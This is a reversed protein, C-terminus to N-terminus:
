KKPQPSGRVVRLGSYGLSAPQYATKNDAPRDASGGLTKGTGDAAIVWEAVNGGLDFILDEDKDGQGHFSGVERLLPADGPLEAITKMLRDADDPNPSYGAWYDLTNEGSTNKYLSAVEDENPVRWQDHTTTSLWAVYAKAKEFTIGNAPYNETGPDVKYSHDFAAYQARTVEFRGIELNGRKVVEPALVPGAGTVKVLNGYRAGDRAIDRRRLAEGLPSDKKFAENEPKETKFLYRDMWTMEENVKRLQHTLKAPGHAEGPFLIFRVPAKNITYLTRYHTWGEETPVQRDNTGFFILTPTRVKDMQFVPSKKIYLEPDELPSKGFYYADFSHGFDVNAWDSIWEVDGAGCMAAKYRAPNTITLEISLISGNSWGATGIRDPDVKGQQILADVGKEIDPIELDYYHGCCISEVFKLGHNSSGHYNVKLVFAGRETYLQTPYAWSESWLDLDTGAPGGHIGLVLPYKKGADYHLPYFLIGDVDDDNAGKWHVIESKAIEKKAFAPNLNTIQMPGTLHTGDLAAGFWQSPISPTSYNYAVRKGDESISFGGLNNAHDGDIMSRTWKRSAGSGTMTYRAPARKTGAALFAVFGDPTVDVGGALGNEWDVDLKHAEGGALDYFYLLEITATYFRPDSSYPATLYFGAGDRTWQVNSPRIKGDTFIQKGQGTRLDWVFTAPAIKQDWAYSLERNHVTVAHSLDKTVAWDGIRDNNETLRTVKKDKVSFKFLRVPPAHAEDDVVRSDDKRQETEKEFLTAEEEASFIIVDDTVWEFRQIGRDFTTLPWPEGGFPNILWIQSHSMGPKADPLPKTSTFAILDGKPSWQPGANTDTGRTLQVEKKETLSSLFLNSVRGDKEKNAVSKSWVVWKGDPSIRFGAATEANIIDEPTWPMAATGTAKAPANQAADQQASLAPLVGATIIALGTALGLLIGISRKHNPM